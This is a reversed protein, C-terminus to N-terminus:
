DYHLDPYTDLWPDDSDDVEGVAAQQWRKWEILDRRRDALTREIRRVSLTEQLPRHLKPQPRPARPTHAPPPPPPPPPEARRLDEEAAYADLIREIEPTSGRNARRM